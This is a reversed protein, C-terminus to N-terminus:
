NPDSFVEVGSPGSWPKGFVFVLRPGQGTADEAAMFGRDVGDATKVSRERHVPTYGPRALILQQLGADPNLPIGRAIQEEVSAQWIEQKWSMDDGPDVIVPPVYNAALAALADMEPQKTEFWKWWDGGGSTFLVVGRARGGNAANWIATQDLWYKMAAKYGDVNGGYVNPHRWGGGPDLQGPGYEYVPGGETFLWEVTYGAARFRGDMVTWRGSYDPWEGAKIVGNTVPIYPHYGIVCDYQNAIKAFDTPLDNGIATNGLVLRIHAYDAQSRYEDRWVQSVATAWTVREAIETANQSNAFYENWEEIYDV